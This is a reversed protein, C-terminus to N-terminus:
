AAKKKKEIIDALTTDEKEDFYKKLSQLQAELEIATVDQHYINRADSLSDQYKRGHTADILM